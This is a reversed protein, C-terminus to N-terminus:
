SEEEDPDVPATPIIKEVPTDDDELFAASEDPDVTVDDAEDLSVEAVEEPVEAAVEEVGEVDETVDAVEPTELQATVKESEAQAAEMQDQKSPLIPKPVFEEGCKPCKAPSKDLDYFKAHCAPCLRKTGLNKDIVDAQERFPQKTNSARM